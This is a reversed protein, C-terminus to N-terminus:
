NRYEVLFADAYEDRVFGDPFNLTVGRNHGGDTMVFPMERGTALHVVRSVEGQSSDANLLIHVLRGESEGWTRIAFNRGDKGRTFRWKGVKWPSSTRTGYIADGNKELWRGVIEMRELAPRPLRGDPMPGVNM